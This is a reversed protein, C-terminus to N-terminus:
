AHRAEEQAAGELLALLQSYHDIQSDAPQALCARGYLCTRVGAARGARIDLARDGIIVTEAPDLGNIRLAALVMAPDPKRPYGQEVSVVGAFLPALGHADLLAQTSAVGRHTVAVNLGGRGLIWACVEAVGPFPPQNALPLAEYAALYGGRLLGPDLRFRQALTAMCRDISQRALGDIVNLAAPQGLGNLARSIAYTIAPYTDFLTGDVDWLINRIV